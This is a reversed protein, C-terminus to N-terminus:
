AIEPIIQMSKQNHFVRQFSKILEEWSKGYFDEIHLGLSVVYNFFRLYARGWRENYTFSDGGFKEKVAKDLAKGAERCNDFVGKIDWKRLCEEAEEMYKWAEEVTKQGKPIEVIFYEGLELKPVYDHIWDASPIRISEKFTQESIALFVPKQNGSLIWKNTRSSSYEPDYAYVLVSWDTTRRGAYVEVPMLGIDKPKIEHVHSIVAKSDVTKVNLNLTLNVDGKRDEM